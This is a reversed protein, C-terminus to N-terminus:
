NKLAYLYFFDKFMKLYLTEYRSRALIYTTFSSAARHRSDARAQSVLTDMRFWTISGIWGHLRSVPNTIV